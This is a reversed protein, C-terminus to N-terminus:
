NQKTREKLAAAIARNCFLVLSSAEIKITKALDATEVLAPLARGEPFQVQHQLIQLAKL